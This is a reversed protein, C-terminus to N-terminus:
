LLSDPSGTTVLDDLTKRRRRRTQPARGAVRRREEEITRLEFSDLIRKNRVIFCTVAFLSIATVGMVRCWGRTMDNSARDKTTSFTREVATRRAYSLRHNRSPYDHKQTTKAAVHVPVTLTQQACCAPRHEPASSVEPRTLPLAMSSERLPCRVKGTVAPCSVRHFGDADDASRRALKYRALEASAVDHAAVEHAIANRALPGLALLAPPTSPCYLNGNAIVAGGHTGRPGRDQPHLDTVIKAGLRRVPLAWHEAVRHAYGADALVDGLTVGSKVMRALVAVFAAPPDIACSTILIRRVLEPVPSGGEENVMTAAQLEYGFFLEDKRGPQDCKRRGWSAEPDACDGGPHSPPCSFTEHDSWDVALDRTRATVDSPVSAEMLADLVDCLLWSPEGDPTEKSLAAVVLNFTREVQRYTLLHWGIKTAVEVGLARRQHRPLEVLARHVRTLHAARGDAQSLAMGLLLTHVRLQRARVGLPLLKEIRPAVGSADLVAELWALANLM